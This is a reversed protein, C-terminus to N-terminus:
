SCSSQMDLHLHHKLSSSTVLESLHWWYTLDSSSQSGAMIKLWTSVLASKSVLFKLPSTPLSIRNPALSLSFPLYPVASPVAFNLFSQYGIYPMVLLIYARRCPLSTAQISFHM